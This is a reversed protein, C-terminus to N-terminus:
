CPLPAVALTDDVQKETQLQNRLMPDNYPANATVMAKPRALICFLALLRTIRELEPDSELVQPLQQQFCFVNSFYLM